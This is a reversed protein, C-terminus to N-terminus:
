NKAGVNRSNLWLTMHNALREDEEKEEAKSRGRRRRGRLIKRKPQHSNGPLTEGVIKGECGRM